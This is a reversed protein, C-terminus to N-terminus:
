KIWGLEKYYREAGPHLPVDYDGRDHNKEQDWTRCQSNDEIFEARREQMAKAIQYVIEESLDKHCIINNGASLTSYDFDLGRYSGAPMKNPYLGLSTLKHVLDDTFPIFVLDNTLAIETVNPHNLTTFDFYVDVRGDRLMEGIQSQPVQILKGAKRYTELDSGMIKLTENFFPIAESGQPKMAVRPLDQAAIIKELTDNGTKTVWDKRALVIVFSVTVDQISLCRINQHKGRDGYIEKLGDWAWKTANSSSFAIDGKGVDITTPNVMAAGRPVVNITSGEPLVDKAFKSMSMAFGYPGTGPQQAVINITVPDGSMQGARASGTAMFSGVLLVAFCVASLTRRSM